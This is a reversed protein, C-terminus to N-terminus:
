RGRHRGPFGVQTGPEITLNINKLVPPNLEGDPRRFAFSVNEFVIRGEVKDADLPQASM